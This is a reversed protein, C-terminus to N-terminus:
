FMLNLKRPGCLKVFTFKKSWKEHGSFRRRRGLAIGLRGDDVVFGRM